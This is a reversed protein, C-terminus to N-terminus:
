FMGLFKRTAELKELSFLLGLMGCSFILILGTAIYALRSWTHIIKLPNSPEEKTIMNIKIILKAASFNLRPFVSRSEIFFAILCLSSAPHLTLLLIEWDIVEAYLNM